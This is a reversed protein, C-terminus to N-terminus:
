EEASIERHRAILDKLKNLIILLTATEIEWWHPVVEQVRIIFADEAEDVPQKRKKIVQSSRELDLFRRLWSGETKLLTMIEQTRFDESELGKFQRLRDELTQFIDFKHTDINLEDLYSFFALSCSNLVAHKLARAPFIGSANELLEIQSAAFALYQSTRSTLLSPDSM